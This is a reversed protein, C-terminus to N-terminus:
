PKNEEIIGVSLANWKFFYLLIIPLAIKHFIGLKYSILKHFTITSITIKFTLADDYFVKFNYKFNLVNLKSM